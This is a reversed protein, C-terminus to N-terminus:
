TKFNLENIEWDQVLDWQVKIDIVNPYFSVPEPQRKIDYDGTTWKGNEDLDFIAKVTYEGKDLM